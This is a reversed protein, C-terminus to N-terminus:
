NFILTFNNIKLKGFVRGFRRRVGGGGILKELKILDMLEGPSERTALRVM